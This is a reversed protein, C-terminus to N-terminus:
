SRVLDCSAADYLVVLISGSKTDGRVGGGGGMDNNEAIFGIYYHLM